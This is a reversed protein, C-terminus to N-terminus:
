EELSGPCSSLGRRVSFWVGISRRRRIMAINYREPIGEVKDLLADLLTSPGVLHSVPDKRRGLINCADIHAECCAAIALHV